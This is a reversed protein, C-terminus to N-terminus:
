LESATNRKRHRFRGPDLPSSRRIGAASVVDFIFNHPQIEFAEGRVSGSIKVVGYGAANIDSVISSWSAARVNTNNAVSARVEEIVRAGSWICVGCPSCHGVAQRASWGSAHATGRHGASGGSLAFRASRRHRDFWVPAPGVRADVALRSRRARALDVSRTGAMPVPHHGPLLRDMLRDRCCDPQGLGGLRHWAHNRPAAGGHAAVLARWRGELWRVTCGLGDACMGDVPVVGRALPGYPRDRVFKGDRHARDRDADCHGSNIRASRAGRRARRVYASLGTVVGAIAIGPGAVGPGLLVIPWDAGLALSALEWPRIVILAAGTAVALFPVAGFRSTAVGLILSLPVLVAVSTIVPRSGMVGSSQAKPDSPRRAVSSEVNM